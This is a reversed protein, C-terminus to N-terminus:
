NLSIFSAKFNNSADPDPLSGFVFASIPKDVYTKLMETRVSVETSNNVKLECFHTFIVYGQVPWPDGSPDIHSPSIVASPETEVVRSTPPFLVVLQIHKANDDHHNHITIKTTVEVKDTDLRKGICQMKKIKLDASAVGM